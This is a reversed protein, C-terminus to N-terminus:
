GSRSEKGRAAPQSKGAMEAQFVNERYWEFTQRVGDELTVHPSFGTLAQTASTDPRRRAPSGPTPPLGVIDLRKGVVRLVLEALEGISIEPESVGLNLTRGGAAPEELVLRVVEVADRVFCFTRRHDISYVQLTGGDRAEYARQLLEPVVHDLGMRPGYVNHPRLITFPVDFYHCLAEGALKSLSYSTRPEAVPLLTLPLDEPTPIPLRGVAQAGAYVESTSFFLFRELAPQTRAWRLVNSQMEINELLTRAPSSVVNRVGVIAALHVIHTIEVDLAALSEPTLLDVKTLTVRDTQLLERVERDAPGRVLNDVLHVEYELEALRKALHFGIFGTGGTILVRRV